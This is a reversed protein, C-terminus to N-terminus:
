RVETPRNVQSLGPGLEPPAEFCIREPQAVTDDILSRKLYAGAAGVAGWGLGKLWCRQALTKLFRDSDSVDAIQLYIHAGDGGFAEGTAAISIGHSTSRRVVCAGGEIAPFARFLSGLPDARVPDSAGDLDLDLLVFGPGPKFVFNERTRTIAGPNDKVFDPNGDLFRRSVLVNKLPLGDRLRGLTLAGTPPTGSIVDALDQADRVPCRTAWGTSLSCNSGDSVLKGDVLSYKKSLSGNAKQLLTIEV